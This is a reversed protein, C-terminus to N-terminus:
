SSLNTGPPLVFAFGDEHPLDDCQLVIDMAIAGLGLVDVKM